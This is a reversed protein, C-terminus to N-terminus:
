KEPNTPNTEELFCSFGFIYTFVRFKVLLLPFSVAYSGAQTQTEACAQAEAEIEKERAAATIKTYHRASNCNSYVM